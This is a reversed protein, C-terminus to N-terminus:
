PNETLSVRNDKAFKVLGAKYADFENGVKLRSFVVPEERGRVTIVIQESPVKRLLKAEEVKRFEIRVIKDSSVSFADKGSGSQPTLILETKDFLIPEAKAM